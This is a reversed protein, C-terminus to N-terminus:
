SKITMTVRISNTYFASAKLRGSIHRLVAKNKFTGFFIDLDRIKTKFRKMIKGSIRLFNEIVSCINKFTEFFGM